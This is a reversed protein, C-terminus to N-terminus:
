AGEYGAMYLWGGKNLKESLERTVINKVQDSPKESGVVV